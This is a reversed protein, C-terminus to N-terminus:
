GRVKGFTPTDLRGWATTETGAAVLLIAENSMRLLSKEKEPLDGMLLEHFVTPHAKSVDPGLGNRVERQTERAQAVMDNLWGFYEAADPDLRSLLSHPISRMVRGILPFHKTIRGAKEASVIVPRLSSFSPNDLYDNSSAFSYETVVDTSFCSFAMDLPVPATSGAYALVRDCLKEAKSRIMADLKAVSGKSFFRSLAARRSRHIDHDAASWTSAPIGAQRMFYDMKHRRKGGGAYILDIWAPDSVHVEGPTVRVVPGYQEHLRRIQNCFSGGGDAYADFYLEYNYTAAALKPGPFKALPHLTLRYIIVALFYMMYVAIGTALVRWDILKLSWSTDEMKTLNFQNLLRPSTTFAL